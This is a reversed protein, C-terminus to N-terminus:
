LPREGPASSAGSLDSGASLGYLRAFFNRPTVHLAKLIQFLQFLRFDDGDTRLIDALASPELGLDQALVEQAVGSAEVYECLLKRTREREARIRSVPPTPM